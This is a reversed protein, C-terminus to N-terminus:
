KSIENHRELDWQRVIKTGQDIAEEYGDKILQEITISSFDFTKNAITHVDNKREVRIVLDVSVMNEILDAYKFHKGTMFNRTLAQQQFINELLDMRIKNDKALKILSKIIDVYDTIMIAMREDFLTRDHYTFDNKRDVVGDYNVPLYEQKIPHVNIIFARLLPVESKRVGHWYRRHEMIAERLPTNAIIGGDWFYRKKKNITKRSQSKKKEENENKIKHKNSYNEVMLKTYDYNVPVSGSALVFEVEIGNNYRIVHEFGEIGNHAFEQGYRGYETKRSGDAKEYSDFVVTSGEQVDVAVLLLRPEKKEYSTAIPFKAFKELSQKLPENSYLYWVNSPDLFTKDPLTQSPKFVNPVGRFVFQKTNYYRRASESTAIDNNLHHSYDWWQTFGPVKDVVSETALHEWFEILREASGRWTKKEKVYSVLVSANMAGISTGAVIDFLPKDNRGIIKDRESALEYFAKYAGAEYAGLSGGGQFILARQFDNTSKLM